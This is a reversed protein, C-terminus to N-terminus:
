RSPEAVLVRRREAASTRMAAELLSAVEASTRGARDNWRTLDRVHAARVDPPPCWRVPENQSGHLTHWTLELARRVVQNGTPESTEADRIATVLCTAVVPEQATGRRDVVYSVRVDGDHGRYSFWADQLWGEEVLGVARRLVDTISALEALRASDRDRQALARREQRRQRHTRRTADVPCPHTLSGPAVGM